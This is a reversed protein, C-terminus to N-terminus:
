KEGPSVQWPLPPIAKRGKAEADKRILDILYWMVPTPGEAAIEQAVRLWDVPIQVTKRPTSHKGSVKKKGMCRM